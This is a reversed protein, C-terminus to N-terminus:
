ALITLNKFLLSDLLSPLASSFYSAIGTHVSEKDRTLVLKTDAFQLTDQSM